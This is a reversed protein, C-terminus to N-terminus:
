FKSAMIPLNLQFFPRLGEPDDHDFQFGLFYSMSGPVTSGLSGGLYWTLPDPKRIGESAIGSLGLILGDKRWSLGLGGERTGISEKGLLFSTLLDIEFLDLAYRVRAGAVPDGATPSKGSEGKLTGNVFGALQLKPFYSFVFMLGGGLAGESKDIRALGFGVNGEVACRDLNDTVVSISHAAKDFVQGVTGRVSGLIGNAVAKVTDALEKTGMDQELGIDLRFFESELRTRLYAAIAKGAAEAERKDVPRSEPLPYLSAFTSSFSILLSIKFENQVNTFADDLHKSLGVTLKKELSDLFLSGRLSDPLIISYPPVTGFRIKLVVIKANLSDAKYEIDLAGIGGIIKNRISSLQDNVLDLKVGPQQGDMETILKEQMARFTTPRAILPNATMLQNLLSGGQGLSLSVFCFIFLLPSLIRSRM